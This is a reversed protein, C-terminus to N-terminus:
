NCDDLVPQSFATLGFKLMASPFAQDGSSTLVTQDEGFCVVMAVSHRFYRVRVTGQCLRPNQRS